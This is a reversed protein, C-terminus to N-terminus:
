RVIYFSIIVAAVVRMVVMFVELTVEKDTFNKRSEVELKSMCQPYRRVLWKVEERNATMSQDRLLIVSRSQPSSLM